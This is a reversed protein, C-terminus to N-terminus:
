GVPGSRGGGDSRADGADAGGRGADDAAAGDRGAGEAFPSGVVDEWPGLLLDLEWDALLDELVVAYAADLVIPVAAVRPGIEKRSDPTGAVGAPFWHSTSSAWSAVEDGVARIADLRGGREAIERLRGRVGVRAGVDPDDPATGTVGGGAAALAAVAGPDLHELDDLLRETATTNPGYTPRRM